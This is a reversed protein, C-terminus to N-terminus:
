GNDPASLAPMGYYERITTDVMKLDNDIYLPFMEPPTKAINHGNTNTMFKYGDEGYVSELVMTCAGNIGFKEDLMKGITKLKLDGVMDLEVHMMVYVICDSPAELAAEVLQEFHFAMETYKDYGKEKIRAFNELAMLYGADDVVIAKYGSNLIIKYIEPYQRTKVSMLHKRFPFPKGLVNVVGVEAEDFNRLSYSKGTGSRGAVIICMGM